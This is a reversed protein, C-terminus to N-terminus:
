DTGQLEHSVRLISPSQPYGAPLPGDKLAREIIFDHAWSNYPNLTEYGSIRAHRPLEFQCHSDGDATFPYVDELCVGSDMMWDLGINVFGGNCGQNDLQCDILDIRIVILTKNM